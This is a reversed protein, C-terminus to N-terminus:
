VQGCRLLVIGLIDLPDGQLPQMHQLFYVKDILEERIKMRAYTERDVATQRLVTCFPM